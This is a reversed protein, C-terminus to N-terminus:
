VFSVNTACSPLSEAYRGEAFSEDVALVDTAEFSLELMAFGHFVVCATRTPPTPPSWVEGAVWESTSESAEVKDMGFLSAAVIEGGVGAGVDVLVTVLLPVDDLGSGVTM